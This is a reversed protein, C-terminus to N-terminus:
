GNLIDSLWPRLEAPLDQRAAMAQALNKDGDLCMILRACVHESSRAAPTDLIKLRTTATGRKLLIDTV